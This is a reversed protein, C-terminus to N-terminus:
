ITELKYYDVVNALQQNNKGGYLNQSTLTVQERRDYDERRNVSVHYGNGWPDIYQRKISLREQMAWFWIDDAIPCLQMFLEEKFIEDDYIHPPYCIGCCGIFSKEDDKTGLKCDPWENYSIYKGNIKTPIYGWQGLVTKKDSKEYANTMWMMYDKHYYMDDDLTLIANYPFDQLAPILKKYSRIDKCFRVDVGVEQLRKLQWPLNVLSWNDYDLYVIIKKPLITQILLSYLMYPLADHVRKGYSTISVVIDGDKFNHGVLNNPLSRLKCNISLKKLWDEFNIRAFFLHQKLKKKLEFLGLSSMIKDRIQFLFSFFKINRLKNLKGM